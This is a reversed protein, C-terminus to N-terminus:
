SVEEYCSGGACTGDDVIKESSDNGVNSAVDQQGLTVVPARECPVPTTEKRIDDVSRDEEAIYKRISSLIDEMSMEERPDPPSM